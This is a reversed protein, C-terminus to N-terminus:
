GEHDQEQEEVSIEQAIFLIDLSNKLFELYENAMEAEKLTGSTLLDQAKDVMRIIELSSMDKVKKNKFAQVIQSGAEDKHM